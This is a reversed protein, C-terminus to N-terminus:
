GTKLHRAQRAPTASAASAKSKPAEILQQFNHRGKMGSLAYDAQLAAMASELSDGLADQLGRYIWYFLKPLAIAHTQGAQAFLWDSFRLFRAFPQDGLLATKSHPFRGSNAILDWYRAFRGIRQLTAFDLVDTSLINYPPYPNYRMVHTTSHRDIPAGRLRKLIGVQIEHPDLAALRDFGAGFSELTEGPLGAILDAHIHV